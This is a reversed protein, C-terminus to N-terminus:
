SEKSRYAAHKSNKKCIYSLFELAGGVAGWRPVEAKGDWERLVVSRLWEVIISFPSIEPTENSQPNHLNDMSPERGTDSVGTTSESLTNAHNSDWVGDLIMEIIDKEGHLPHVERRSSLGQNRSIELICLRAAIAKVLRTMLALSLENDLSDIIELLDDITGSSRPPGYTIPAVKGSARLSQIYLWAKSSCAPVSAVLAALAIKAVHAAEADNLITNELNTSVSLKHHLRSESDADRARKPPHVKGVPSKSRSPGPLYLSGVSNWLSPFINSPHYDIEMLTRFTGSIERFGVSPINSTSSKTPPTCRFSHLLTKANSLVNIISQIGYAVIMDQSTADGIIMAEPHIPEEARGLSKIFQREEHASPDANKIMSVMSTINESTFHSLTQPRIFAPVNVDKLYQDNETTKGGTLIQLDRPCNRSENSATTISSHPRNNNSSLSPRVKHGNSSSSRKEDREPLAGADVMSLLGSSGEAMIETDDWEPSIRESDKPIYCSRSDKASASETSMLEGNCEECEEDEEEGRVSTAWKLLGLENPVRVKQLVMMAITDFLNQTFSKPDKVNRLEEQQASDRSEVNRRVEPPQDETLDFNVLNRMSSGDSNSHQADKSGVNGANSRRRKDSQTALPGSSRPGSTANPEYPCLGKEPNDQSALFTALSRASLVTFRRFPGSSVRRQHSM